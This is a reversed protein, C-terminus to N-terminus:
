QEREFIKKYIDNCAGYSDRLDIVKKGGKDGFICEGAITGFLYVRDINTGFEYGIKKLLIPKQNKNFINFISTDTEYGIFVHCVDHDIRKGNKLVISNDFVDMVESKDEFVINFGDDLSAGIESRWKQISEGILSPRNFIRNICDSKEKRFVWTIKNNKINNSIFNAAGNGGGIVTINFDRYGSYFSYKLNRIGDSHARIRKFRSHKGTSVVINKSLFSSLNTKISFIGDQLISINEISTNTAVEIKKEKVLNNFYNFFEIATVELSGDSMGLLKYDLSALKFDDPLRKAMNCIEGSEIVLTKKSNEVCLSALNIGHPGGGIIVLDYIERSM